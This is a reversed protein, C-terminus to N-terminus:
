CNEKEDSDGRLRWPNGLARARGVQSVARRRSGHGDLLEDFRGDLGLGKSSSLRPSVPESGEHAAQQIMANGRSREGLPRAGVSPSLREGLSRAPGLKEVVRDAGRPSVAQDLQHRFEELGKAQSLSRQVEDVLASFQRRGDHAQTELSTRLESMRADCHRQVEWAADLAAEQAREALSRQSEQVRQAQGGVDALCARLEERVALVEERVRRVEDRVLQDAEGRVRALSAATAADADDMRESLLETRAAVTREAANARGEAGAVGDRLRQDLDKLREEQRDELLKVAAETAEARARTVAGELAVRAEGLRESAQDEVQQIRGDVHENAKRLQAQMNQLDMAIHRELSLMNDGLKENLEGMKRLVEDAMTRDARKLADLAVRQQRELRESTESRVASVAAGLEATAEQFRERLADVADRCSEINQVQASLRHEVAEGRSILEKTQRLCREVKTDLQQAGRQVRREADRQGQVTESLEEIKLQVDKRHEVFEDWHALFRGEAVHAVRRARDGAKDLRDVM